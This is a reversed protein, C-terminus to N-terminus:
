SLIASQQSSYSFVNIVLVNFVFKTLIKVFFFDIMFYLMVFFGFFLLLVAVVFVFLCFCIFSSVYVLYQFFFM